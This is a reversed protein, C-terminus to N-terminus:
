QIVAGRARAMRAAKILARAFEAAEPDIRVKAATGSRTLIWEALRIVERADLPRDAYKGAKAKLISAAVEAAEARLDALETLHSM